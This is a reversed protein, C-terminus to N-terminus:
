LVLWETVVPFGDPDPRLLISFPGPAVARLTFRGEDDITARPRRGSGRTRVRTTEQPPPTLFGDVRLGRGDDMVTVELGVVLGAAVFVLVRPGDGGARDGSDATLRAELPRVTARSAEALDHGRDHRRIARGNHVINPEM